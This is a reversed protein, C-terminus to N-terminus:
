LSDLKEQLRAAEAREEEQHESQAQRLQESGAALELAALTRPM